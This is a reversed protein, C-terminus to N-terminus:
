FLTFNLNAHQESRIPIESSITKNQKLVIAVGLGCLVDNRNCVIRYDGSIRLNTRYEICDTGYQCGLTESLHIAAGIQVFHRSVLNCMFPQTIMCKEGM